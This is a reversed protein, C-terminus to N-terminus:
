SPLKFKRTSRLPWVSTFQAGGNLRYAASMGASIGLGELADKAKRFVPRPDATLMFFNFEKASTDYGELEVSDGFVATLAAEISPVVSEDTLSPRWLKIVLQYEM